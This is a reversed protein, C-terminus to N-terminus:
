RTHLRHIRAFATNTQRVAYFNIAPLGGVTWETQELVATDVQSFAEFQARLSFGNFNTNTANTNDVFSPSFAAALAFDIEVGAAELAAVSTASFTTKLVRKGGVTIRHAPCCFAVFSCFNAVVSLACNVKVPISHTTSGHAPSVTTLALSFLAVCLDRRAAVVHSLARCVTRGATSM